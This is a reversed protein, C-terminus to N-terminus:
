RGQIANKEGVLFSAVIFCMGILVFVVDTVAAVTRGVGVDHFGEWANLGTFVIMFVRWM